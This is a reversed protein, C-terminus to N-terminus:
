KSKETCAIAPQSDSKADRHPLNKPPRSPPPGVAPSAPKRQWDPAQDWGPAQTLENVGPTDGGASMYFLDRNGADGRDTSFAIWKNDPSWAPFADTGPDNTLRKLLFRDNTEYLELNKDRNSVFAVYEGTPSWTPDFDEAPNNTINVLGSGDPNMLYIEKNRDRESTFAIRNGGPSWAPDGDFAPNRTLQRPSTGDANMVWIESNGTRTSEFVIRKGDPSWAPDGDFGPTVTLRRRLKGNANMVWIDSSRAPMGKANPNYEYAIRRGDPSWAPLAFCGRSNTLPRVPSPPVTETYIQSSGTRFSQFVILGDQGPFAAPAPSADAAGLTSVALLLGVAAARRLAKRRDRPAM